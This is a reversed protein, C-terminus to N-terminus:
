GRTMARKVKAQPVGCNEVQPFLPHACPKRGTAKIYLGFRHIGFWQLIEKASVKGL